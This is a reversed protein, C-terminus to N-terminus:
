LCGEPGVTPPGRFGVRAALWEKPPGYDAYFPGIKLQMGEYFFFDRNAWFEQPLYPKISEIKDMTIVDGEKFTPGVGGADEQASASAAMVLTLATLLAVLKARAATM